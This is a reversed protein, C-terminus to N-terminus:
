SIYEVITEQKSYGNHYLPCTIKPIYQLELGKRYVENVNVKNRKYEQRM